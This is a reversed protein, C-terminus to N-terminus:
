SCQKWMKRHLNIFIGTMKLMKPLIDNVSLDVRKCQPIGATSYYELPPLKSVKFALRSAFKWAEAHRAFREHRVQKNININDYTVIWHGRQLERRKDIARAANEVYRITQSDSLCIGIHNLTTIVSKSTARAILILSLLLQFGKVHDSNKKAVVAIATLSHIDKLNTVTKTFDTSGGIPLTTNPAYQLLQDYLQSFSFDSLTSPDSEEIPRIPLAGGAQQLNVLESDIEARVRDWPIALIQQM